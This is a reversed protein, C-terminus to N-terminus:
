FHPSDNWMEQKIRWQGLASRHLVLALKGFSQNPPKGPIQLTQHETAWESAWDASVQIEHFQLDERIVRSDRAASRIQELWATIAGKGVLPALGPMLDVGDEAWLALMGVHDQKAILDSFKKNFVGIEVKNRQASEPANAPLLGIMFVCLMARLSTM